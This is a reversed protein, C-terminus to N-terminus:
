NYMVRGDEVWVENAKRRTKVSDNYVTIEEKLREIERELSECKNCKEPKRYAVSSSHLEREMELSHKIDNGIQEIQAPTATVGASEFIEDLNGMTLSSFKRKDM